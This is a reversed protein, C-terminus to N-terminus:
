QELCTRLQILSRRIWSKLTGLPVSMRVALESYTAGSFFAERVAGRQQPALQQMCRELRLREEGAEALAAPTPDGDPVEHASEDDLPAERHQRMRDITRNRALAVLWTMAGGRAPDFVDARRWATTFVDQLLDEAESRDHVMRVIVAYVRSSALRYLEAFAAQDGRATSELLHNLRARRAADQADEGDIPAAADGNDASGSTDNMRPYPCADGVRVSKACYLVPLRSRHPGRRIFAPSDAM